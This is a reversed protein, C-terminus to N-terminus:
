SPLRAQAKTTTPSCGAMLRMCTPVSCPSGEAPHCVEAAGRLESVGWRVGIYVSKLHGVEERGWSCKCGQPPQALCACTSALGGGGRLSLLLNEPSALLPPPLSLNIGQFPFFYFFVCVGCVRIVHLLLNSVLFLARTIDGQRCDIQTDCSIPMIIGGARDSTELWSWPGLDPRPFRGPIM